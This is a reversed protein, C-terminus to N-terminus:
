LAHYVVISTRPYAPGIGPSFGGLHDRPPQRVPRIQIISPKLEQQKYKRKTAEQIQKNILSAATNGIDYEQQNNMGYLEERSYHRSSNFNGSSSSPTMTASNFPFSSSPVPTHSAPISSTVWEVEEEEEAEKDDDYVNKIPNHISDSSTNGYRKMKSTSKETTNTSLSKTINLQPEQHQFPIDDWLSTSSDFKLDEKLTKDAPTNTTPVSDNSSDLVGMTAEEKQVVKQDDIISKSYSGQQQEQFSFLNELSDNKSFSSVEPEQPLIDLKRATSTTVNVMGQNFENWDNVLTGQNWSGREGSSSTSNSIDMEKNHQSVSPLPTSPESQFPSHPKTISTPSSIFLDQLQHQQNNYNIDSSHFSIEQETVTTPEAPPSSTHATAWSSNDSNTTDNNWSSSSIQNSDTPIDQTSTKVKDTFTEPHVHDTESSYSNSLVSTPDSSFHSQLQDWTIVGGYDLKKEILPSTKNSVWTNDNQNINNSSSSSDFKEKKEISSTQQLFSLTTPTTPSTNPSNDGSKHLNKLNWPRYSKEYEKRKLTKRNASNGYM